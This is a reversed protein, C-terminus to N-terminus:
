RLTAKPLYTPKRGADPDREVPPGPTLDRGILGPCDPGYHYVRFEANVLEGARVPGLPNADGQALPGKSVM